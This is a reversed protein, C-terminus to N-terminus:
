SAMALAPQWGLERIRCDGPTHTIRFTQFEGARRLAIGLHIRLPLEGDPPLCELFWAQEEREGLLLGAQRQGSLFDALQAQLDALTEPVSSLFVAWRSGRAVAGLIRLAARRYRLAHWEPPLGAARGLNVGGSLVLRNPGASGLANIGARQLAASEMLTLRQAPRVTSRLSCNAAPPQGRADGAVLVGAIAGAASGSALEPFWSIINPSTLGLQAQNSLLGTVSDCAPPPPLLLMANRRRCYREAALIAIPGLTEGPAPSLLCLLDICPVQELSYLGTGEVVSGILDYDSLAPAGARPPDVQVWADGSASPGITADPRRGPGDGVLRVLGSRFLADGVFDPHAPDASVRRFIEQEAVHGRSGSDLRHIVLNFLSPEDAAVQDYDVSARLLELPGPHLAELVLLDPGAPLRLRNREDSRCVRVVIALTGGNDFFGSLQQELRSPKDPSGFRSLYEAVSRVAVPISVPGRPAPGVFAAVTERSIPIPDGAPAGELVFIGSSGSDSV